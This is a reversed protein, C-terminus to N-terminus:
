ATASPRRRAQPVACPRAPTGSSGTPGTPTPSSRTTPRCRRGAADLRLRGRMDDCTVKTATPAQPLRLALAPLVLLPQPRREHGGASGAPRRALPRTLLRADASAQCRRGTSASSTATSGRRRTGPPSTRAACRRPASRTRCGHQRPPVLVRLPHRRPHEGADLRRRGEQLRPLGRQPEAPRPRLHVADPTLFYDNSMGLAPKTIPPPKARRRRRRATPSASHRRERRTTGLNDWAVIADVRPDEQGVFSVAAAGLSHGAIGIRARTSWAGCLPDFGRRPRGEVRRDQKAAHSTGVGGNANGCSDRSTPTAKSDLAPLRPRGRHRRLLAPGGALPRGGSRRAGRRLHGLPGPGARRLHARRIRAQRPDRGAGLLPDGPAQVSGTTIVIAPRASPGAADGLRQRLDDRRRTGHVAGAQPHRLRGQALRLLPRRRRVRQHPPRLHERHLRAGPRHDPHRPGAAPERREAAPTAGPVRADRHHLQVRENIKAFNKAELTPDFACASALRRRARPAIRARLGGARRRSANRGVARVYWPANGRPAPEAPPATADAASEYRPDIALELTSIRTGALAPM